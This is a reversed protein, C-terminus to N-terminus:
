QGDAGNSTVRRTHTDEFNNDRLAKVKDNLLKKQDVESSPTLKKKTMRFGGEIKVTLAGKTHKLIQKEYPLFNFTFSHLM